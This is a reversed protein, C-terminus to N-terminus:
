STAYSSLPCSAWVAGTQWGSPLASLSGSSSSESRCGGGSEDRFRLTGGTGLLAIWYTQGASLPAAPIGVANWAGAAIPSQRGQSLLTGPHGNADTYIGAVLTGASSGLDVYVLLSVAAGSSTATAQFAEASGADNSDAVSYVTSSGLLTQGATPTSVTWRRTAPAGTGSANTARVAFTHDGDSLGSYSKPSTCATYAGADLSCSFSASRDSATFALSASTSSTTGSPESSTIATTPPAAPPPPPASTSVTFSRTAPSADVNGAADTARVAVSHAGDSLPSTTWPSSCAGWSGADVRCSFTSGSESSSFAFRPTSDDTTADPGSDITTEPATTDAPASPSAVTIAKVTSDSDGDADTVAVRVNKTGAGQFTFTMTEGNSLPWQTGGAGDGGDDVWTYTCPTDDCTASSADFTVPQGAVPAAPSYVFAADPQDDSPPPPPPTGANITWTQTAPSADVNGAADTARVSFTHSGASLATYAKPSSCLAYAAADLKCQFTSASESSAFAFSAGTSTSPDNPGSSITTNPATTDSAARITWTWVAPSADTNGAVDTARVSFTHSGVSLGSYAMPSSCDDYAGADLKCEFAPNPENANFAISASTSTTPDAPASTITTDPAQNDTPAKITWTWVAPSADTNGAVDTARVSFSHTGTALASYAKPSTCDGYAGADLKCEFAPNPESANFAFSASTSTSPDAPAATITTDPANTDAPPPPPPPAGGGGAAAVGLSSADSARDYGPSNSALTAAPLATFSNGGSLVPTGTLSKSGACNSSSNCLNYDRATYTAAAGTNTDTRVGGGTVNDIVTADTTQQGPKSSLNIFNSGLVTNHRIVVSRCGGCGIAEDDRATTRIANNEIVESNGGDYAIIGTENDYLVNNRIVTHSQGYLQIADVHPGCSGQKLGHLVNGTILVGYSGIQIGDSCGPGVFENNSVTVGSSQTGPGGGYHVSLRGEAGGQANWPLFRNGDIVIAGNVIQATDVDVQGDVTSDHVEIHSASGNIGVGALESSGSFGQVTYYATSSFKPAMTVAAGDAPRLTVMSSRKTSFSPSGYAGASLCLVSNAPASGAKSVVTSSTATDTCAPLGAAGASAPVLACAAGALVLVSLVGRALHVLPNALAMRSV